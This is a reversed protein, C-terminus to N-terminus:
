EKLYCLKFGDISRIFQTLVPSAIDGLLIEYTNEQFIFTSLDKRIRKTGALVLKGVNGDALEKKEIFGILSAITGESGSQHFSICFYHSTRSGAKHLQYYPINLVFHASLDGSQRKMSKIDVSFDQDESKILFDQGWDQGDKAGFSRTPRPLHYLDAFIIEGLTGTYRFIRTKSLIEDHLDWINSVKHHQLSYEVLKRAFQKQEDSVSIQIYFSNIL